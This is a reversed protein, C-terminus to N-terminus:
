PGNNGAAMFQTSLIPCDVPSWAVAAVHQTAVNACSSVLTTYGCLPEPMRRTVSCAALLCAALCQVYHWHALAADLADRAGGQEESM